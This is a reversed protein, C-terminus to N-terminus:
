NKLSTFLLLLEIIKWNYPIINKLYIFQSYIANDMMYISKPTFLAIDISERSGHFTKISFSIKISININDSLTQKVNKNEM